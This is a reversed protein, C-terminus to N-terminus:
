RVDCHVQDRDHYTELAKALHYAITQVEEANLPRELIALVDFLLMKSLQGAAHTFHM